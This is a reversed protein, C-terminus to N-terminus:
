LPAMVPLTPYSLFQLELLRVCWVFVWCAGDDTVRVLEHGSDNTIRQLLGAALLEVEVIDQYPWGASRYVERLRQAHIRKLAVEPTSM